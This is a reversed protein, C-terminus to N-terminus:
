DYYTITRYTISRPQLVSKGKIKVNEFSKKVIWNGKTDLEYMYTSSSDIRGKENFFVEKILNGIGDFTQTSKSIDGLDADKEITERQNGQYTYNEILSIQGDNEFRIKEILQKNDNYKYIYKTNFRDDPILPKTERSPMDPIMAVLSKPDDDFSIDTFMFSNVRNRDIYGWVTIGSPYGYQFNVERTLNGQENYYFETSKERKSKPTEQYEEFISKVKGKLNEDHADSFPKDSVPSQPLPRPEADKVKIDIIEQRSLLRFSDVIKDISEKDDSVSYIAAVSYFTNKVFFARVQTRGTSSVIQWEKGVNQKFLYLQENHMAKMENAREIFVRGFKEFYTNKFKQSLSLKKGFDASRFKLFSIMFLPESENKQWSFNAGITFMGEFEEDYEKSSSFDKPLNIAFEGFTSVFNDQAFITTASFITLLLIKILNRM